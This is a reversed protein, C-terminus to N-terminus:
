NATYLQSSAAAGVLRGGNASIALSWWSKTPSGSMASWTLGANNSYYIGGNAGQGIAAVMVSADDSIDIASWTNPGTGAAESWTAGSDNSLWISGGSAAAALKSGDASAAVSRWDPSGSPTSRQNWAGGFNSTTWIGGSVAGSVVAVIKNGDASMAVSVWSRSGASTQSTWTAGSDNSLYIYNNQTVAAMKTGDSSIAVATWNRAGASTRTTWNAGSDTSTYVNGSVLDAAVLKTGDSNTDLAYWHTTPVALANWTAGFDASRYIYAGDEGAYMIRGDDSGTVVVFNRPIDRATFTCASGAIVCTLTITSKESQITLRFVNASASIPSAFNVTFSSSSDTTVSLGTQTGPSYFTGNWNHIVFSTASNGYLPLANATSSDYASFTFVSGYCSSPVNSVKLSSFKYSGANSVNAFGAVPTLTIAQSGSCATTVQVGQGFELVAGSGLSINAALTTRLGLFAVAAITLLILPKKRFFM